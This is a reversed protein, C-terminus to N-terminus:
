ISMMICGAVQSAKCSICLCIFGPPADVTSKAGSPSGFMGNPQQYDLEARVVGNPDACPDARGEGGNGAPFLFGMQPRAATAVPTFFDKGRWAHDVANPVSAPDQPCSAGLEARTLRYHERLSADSLGQARHEWFGAPADEMVAAWIHSGGGVNSTCVVKVKPTVFLELYGNKNLTLGKKPGFPLHASRLASLMGGTRPLPKREKVGAERVPLTDRWPGRELLTVEVGAQALRAAAVSGGFGSGIVIARRPKLTNAPASNQM